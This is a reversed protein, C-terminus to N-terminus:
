IQGGFGLAKTPTQFNQAARSHGNKTLFSYNAPGFGDFKPESAEAAEKPIERIKVM